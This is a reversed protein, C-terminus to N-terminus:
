SKNIEMQDLHFKIADIPTPKAIPFNEDEYVEVQRALVELEDEASENDMLDNIRILAEDYDRITKIPRISTNM